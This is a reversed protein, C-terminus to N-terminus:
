VAARDLVNFGSLNPYRFILIVFKPKERTNKRLTSERM